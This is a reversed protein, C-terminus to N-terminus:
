SIGPQKGAMSYVEGASAGPPGSLMSQKVLHRFRTKCNPLCVLTGNDLMQM